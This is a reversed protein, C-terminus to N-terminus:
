QKLPMPVIRPPNERSAPVRRALQRSATGFCYQFSQKMPEPAYPRMVRGDQRMTALVTRTLAERKATLAAIPAGVLELQIRPGHSRVVSGDIPLTM